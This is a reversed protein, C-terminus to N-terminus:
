TELMFIPQIAKLGIPIFQPLKGFFSERERETLGSNEAEDEEEESKPVVM